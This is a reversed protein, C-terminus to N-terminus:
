ESTSSYIATAKNALVFCDHYVRGEVLVGSIGPPDIHTHYEALKVPACAARPHVLIFQQYQPLRSQPVPIVPVGDVLGLMGTIHIQQAIDSQLLFSTGNAIKLLNYFNYTTFLIRGAEPVNNNHLAEQAALFLTYANAATAATDDTTGASAALKALRYTDLAPILVERVQRALATAASKVYMQDADNGKDVTMTFAKDQTLTLTQKTDQLETPTGYRSSGTRTYNGLAATQISYINVANVGVWDYDTNFAVTTVSDRAFKEDVIPSYKDALNIAM